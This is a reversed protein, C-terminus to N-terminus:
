KCNEMTGDPSTCIFEKLKSAKRIQEILIRESETFGKELCEMAQSKRLSVEELSGLSTQLVINPLQSFNETFIGVRGRGSELFLFETETAVPKAISLGSTDCSIIKEYRNNTLIFDEKSRDTIEETFVGSGVLFFECSPIKDKFENLEKLRLTREDTTYILNSSNCLGLSRKDCYYKQTNSEYRLCNGTTREYLVWLFLSDKQTKNSKQKKLGDIDNCSLNLFYCILFIPLVKM